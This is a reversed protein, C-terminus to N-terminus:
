ESDYALCGLHGALHVVSGITKGLLDTKVLVTTFSYYIFGNKKDVAIGQVHGGRYVGSYIINPINNM